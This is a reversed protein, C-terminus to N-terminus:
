IVKTGSDFKLVQDLVQLGNLDGPLNYDLLIAEPFFRAMEDLGERGNHAVRVDFSKMALYKAIKKALVQEDEIILVGGSSM